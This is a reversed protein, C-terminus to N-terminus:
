RTRDEKVLGDEIVVSVEQGEGVREVWIQVDYDVAMQALIAMNDNDLLSGDRVLLVKLDPNLSIGMAASVKLRQAGSLQAFPIENFFVGEENFTLGEVPLKASKIAELKNNNLTDLDINLKRQKEKLTNLNTLQTFAKINNRVAANRVAIQDLQAQIDTTDAQPFQELKPENTVLWAEILGRKAELEGIKTRLAAIEQDTQALKEKAEAVKAIAEGKAGAMAAVQNLAQTLSETSEEEIAISPNYPNNKNLAELEDVQRNVYTREDYLLKYQKEHGTFDYPVLGKLIAVQEKSPMNAFAAPDFTLKSVLKNLLTQPSSQPVGEKNKVELSDSGTLANITRIVVLEETELVIRGEREGHRVPMESFQKKGGIAMQISDLTSTKGQENRGGVVVMNSTPTIDVVKIKQINEARLNIIKSM